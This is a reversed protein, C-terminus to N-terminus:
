VPRKKSRALLLVLLATLLSAMIAGQRLSWFPWGALMAVPVCLLVLLLLIIGATWGARGRRLTACLKTCIWPGLVFLAVADHARHYTAVMGFAICTGVLLVSQEKEAQHSPWVARVIGAALVLLFLVPLANQLLGSGWYGALSWVSLIHAGLPLVERSTASMSGGNQELSMLSRYSHLLSLLNGRTALVMGAGATFGAALAAARWAIRRAVGAQLLMGLVVWLAVHPKLLLALAICLSRLWIKERVFLGLMCLAAVSVSVNGIELAFGLLPCAVCLGLWGLRWGLALGLERRMFSLMAGLALSMLVASLIFWLWAANAAGLTALPAMVALTFPPYVPLHGFWSAPAALGQEAFVRQVGTVSYPDDGHAFLWVAAYLTKFDFGPVEWTRVQLYDPVLSGALGGLAAFPALWDAWAYTRQQKSRQTV